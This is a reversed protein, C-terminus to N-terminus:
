RRAVRRVLHAEFRDSKELEELIAAAMMEYGAANTHWGDAQMVMEGFSEIPRFILRRRDTAAPSTFRRVEPVDLGEWEGPRGSNTYAYFITSTPPLSVELSWVRDGARQDGHTGDDHMAVKNPVGDGLSPHAGAVYIADAVPHEGAHVRFVVRPGPDGGAPAARGPELGLRRELDAEIEARAHDILAKTDVLPVGESRALDRLAERYPTDWLENFLLIVDAGRSRALEIMNRTNAQYDIPSVRTYEAVAQYDTSQSAAGGLWPEDATGATAALKQMYDGISWPRYRIIDAQYRLLRYVEIHELILEARKALPQPADDEKEGFWDKDRWGVVSADNMGFGILLVDPDYDIATRKLLELGQFSSYGLVGFNLIEINSGPFRSDILAQLRRPYAEEQDVNAGFTWSDGLCLIRLASPPKERSFERDRFGNSNTVVTWRPNDRLSPPIRPVFPRLLKIRDEEARAPSYVDLYTRRVNPRSKWSLVDDPELIRVGDLWPPVPGFDQVARYPLVVCDVMANRAFYAVRILGELVAFVLVTFLFLKLPEIILARPSRM